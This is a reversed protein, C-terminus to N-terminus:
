PVVTLGVTSRWSEGGHGRSAGLLNAIGPITMNFAMPAMHARILGTLVTRYKGGSSGWTSSENYCREQNNYLLFSCIFVRLLKYSGSLFFWPGVCEKGARLKTLSPVLHIPLSGPNREGVGGGVGLCQFSTFSSDRPPLPQNSLKAFLLSLWPEPYRFFPNLRGEQHCMM